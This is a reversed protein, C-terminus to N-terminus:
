IYHLGATYPFAIPFLCNIVSKFPILSPVNADPNFLLAVFEDYSIRIVHDLVSLCITEPAESELLEIVGAANPNKEVLHPLLQEWLKKVDLIKVTGSNQIANLRVGELAEHM